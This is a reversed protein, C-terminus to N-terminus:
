HHFLRVHSLSLVMSHDDAAAIIDEDRLSGGPESVYTVGSRAARDINDRFPFFADSALSVGTISALYKKKEERSLPDPLQTFYRQWLAEMDTEPEDCLYQEIANDKDNRSLKEKFPLSLVKGMRRMQWHDAKDGALRTCHIRSQQGAGVGITQGHFAYCVSNSQTYKLAILAVVLDRKAEPPLEKSRSVITSFLTKDPKFDNHEQTFTIGFVKRTEIPDPEYSPDVLIVTYGGKRKAKLIELAEEGYGPAIVGDSVERNIAKATATDCPDSLAIFDGFSSMRDTGRARIFATSLPTLTQNEGVFYMQKEEESLPVAIAAGAPSVHKFSTAASLGTAAKLERVLQWGNLADLFNIYGAKGNLVKVPLTGEISISANKQNPNCGYKLELRDM